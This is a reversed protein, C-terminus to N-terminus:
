GAYKLVYAETLNHMMFLEGSVFYNEGPQFFQGTIEGDTERDIQERTKKFHLEEWVYGKYAEEVDADLELTDAMVDLLYYIAYGPKGWDNDGPMKTEGTPQGNEDRLYFNRGSLKEDFKGLDVYILGDYIKDLNFVAAEPLPADAIKFVTVTDGMEELITAMYDIHVRDHNVVTGDENVNSGSLVDGVILGDVVRGSNVDDPMATSAILMRELRDSWDSVKESDPFMFCALALIKTRWALEEGKTDGPYVITGDEDMYYPIEFDYTLTDAEDLVMREVKEYIEPAMQDRLLWAGLAINEAWLPSQWSDGWYRDEQDDPHNSRHEEVVSDILKICMAEADEKSVGVIEEDYYDYYLALGICYIAHSVPRIGNEAQERSLYLIPLIEENKWDAFAEASNRIALSREETLQQDSQLSTAAAYVYDKESPWWTNLIYRLNLNMIRVLDSEEDALKQGSGSESEAETRTEAAALTHNVSFLLCASIVFLLVVLAKFKSHLFAKSTNM